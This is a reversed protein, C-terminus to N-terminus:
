GFDGQVYDLFHKRHSIAHFSARSYVVWSESIKHVSLILADQLVDGTANEEQNREQQGDRQKKPARCDKKLHGKKGCNWCEIKGFRSKSKGKRSNGCNGSGKGKDKQRRRNEMNLANGSTEGTIKQRMEESLIVGVVDDFKLINSGSVCNTVPMVLSNWSEPLSCLILLARVEDYFDVKVSSIQNTVMTFENLHDAVYGGKSIKMNFLRKM